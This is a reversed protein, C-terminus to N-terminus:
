AKQKGRLLSLAGGGLIFLLMSTPEPVAKISFNDFTQNSYDYLAVKGSSFVNTVLTSTPTTEGNLFAKYTNGMVEIKLHANSGQLNPYPSQEYTPGSNNQIIHWYLGNYSGGAGGTVLLVGSQNDQSRLWVGGDSLANIDMEVIFDTLNPLSTVSSYTLPSNNPYLTNYVGADAYWSGAENGWEPRAGNDFNDSFLLIAHAQSSFLVLLAISLIITRM